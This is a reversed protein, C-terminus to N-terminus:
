KFFDWIKGTRPPFLTQPKQFVFFILKLSMIQSIIEFVNLYVLNFFIRWSCDWLASSYEANQETNYCCSLCLYTLLVYFLLVNIKRM